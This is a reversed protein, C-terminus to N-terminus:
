RFDLLRAQVSMVETSGAMEPAAQVFKDLAGAAASFWDASRVLYKGVWQAYLGKSRISSQFAQQEEDALIALLQAAINDPIGSSHLSYSFHEIFSLRDRLFLVGSDKLFLDDPSPDDGLAIMSPYRVAVQLPSRFVCIDWDLIGIINFEGDIVINNPNLDTHMLPFPFTDLSPIHYKEEAMARYILCDIPDFSPLSGNFIRKLRTDIRVLTWALASMTGTSSPIPTTTHVLMDVTYQALQALVKERAQPPPFTANWTLTSGKMWDLLIYPTGVGDGDKSDSWAHVTAIPITPVTNKVYNMTTVTPEIDDELIAHPVRLAWSTGDEFIIPYVINCVGSFEEKNSTCPQGKISSATKYVQDWNIKARTAQLQDTTAM